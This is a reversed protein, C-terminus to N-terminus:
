RLSACVFARGSGAAAPDATIALSANDASINACAGSYTIHDGGDNSDADVSETLNTWSYSTAAGNVYESAFGVAIGKAVVSLNATSPDNTDSGTSVPTLSFVNTARWVACAARFCSGSFTVVVDGTTGTPVLAAYLAVRNFVSAGNITTVLQTAAVGGITVSSITRASSNQGSIGAIVLRNGAAAGFSLAAFTYTTLDSNSVQHDAFAIAATSVPWIGAAQAQLAEALTWMGPASALTPVIPTARIIGGPFRTRAAM